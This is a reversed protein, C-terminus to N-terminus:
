DGVIRGHRPLSDALQDSGLKQAFGDDTVDTEVGFGLSLHHRAFQFYLENRLAGQDLANAGASMPQPTYQGLRADTGRDLIALLPDFHVAFAVQEFDREPRVESQNLSK